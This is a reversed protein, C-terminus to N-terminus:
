HPPFVSSKMMPCFMFRFGFYELLLSPSMFFSFLLFLLFLPVLFSPCLIISPFVLKLLSFHRHRVNAVLKGASSPGQQGLDFSRQGRLFCFKPKTRCIKCKATSSAHQPPSASPANVSGCLCSRETNSYSSTAAPSAMADTVSVNCKLHHSSIFRKEPHQIKRKHAAGLYWSEPAQIQFAIVALLLFRKPCSRSCIGNATWGWLGDGLSSILSSDSTEVVEIGTKPCSESGPRDM